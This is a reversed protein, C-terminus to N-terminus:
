NGIHGQTEHLLNNEAPATGLWSDPIFEPPLLPSWCHCDPWRRVAGVLDRFVLGGSRERRFAWRRRSAHRLCSGCGLLPLQVERLDEGYVWEDSRADQRPTPAPPSQPSNGVRPPVRRWRGFVTERPFGTRVRTARVQIRGREVVRSRLRPQRCTWPIHSPLLVGRDSSRPTVTSSLPNSGRVEEIRVFREVL